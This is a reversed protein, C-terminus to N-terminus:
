NGFGLAEDMLDEEYVDPSNANSGLGSNDKKSPSCTPSNKLKTKMNPSKLFGGSSKTDSITDMVPNCQPSNTKNQLHRPSTPCDIILGNEPSSVPSSSDSMSKNLHSGSHIKRRVGINEIDESHKDSNDNLKQSPIKFVNDKSKTDISALDSTPIHSNVDLDDNKDNYDDTEGNQKDLSNVREVSSSATKCSSSNSSLSSKERPSNLPIIKPSSNLTVSSSKSFSVDGRKEHSTVKDGSSDVSFDNTNSSHDPKNELPISVIENCNSSQSGKTVTSNSSDPEPSAPADFIVVKKEESVVPTPGDMEPSAPSENVIVQDAKQSSTNNSLPVTAKCTLKDIVASLSGKRGRSATNNITQKSSSNEVSSQRSVPPGPGKPANPVSNSGRFNSVSNSVSPTRSSASDSNSGKARFCTQQNSVNSNNSSSKNNSNNHPNSNSASVNGWNSNNGSSHSNSNRSQSSNGSNYNNRYSSNSNSMNNHNNSKNYSNSGKNSYNQPSNGGSRSSNSVNSVIQNSPRNSSNNSNNGSSGKNHSYSNKSGGSNSVYMNSKGSNVSSTSNGGKSASTVHGGAKSFKSNVTSTTSTCSTTASTTTVIPNNVSTPTPVKQGSSTSSLKPIPPLSAIKNAKPNLFSLVSEATMASSTTVSMKSNSTSKDRGSSSSSRSNSKSKEKESHPSSTRSSISSLSKNLSKESKSSSSGSNLSSASSSRAHGSKNSQPNPSNKGSNGQIQINKQLNSSSSKSSSSNSGSSSKSTPTHSKGANQGQPSKGNSNQTLLKQSGSTALSVAGIKGITTSTPSQTVSKPTSPTTPTSPTRSVGSSTSSPVVIPKLKITATRSIKSESKSSSSSRQTKHSKNAKSSSSSSSSSSSKKSEHPSNKQPVEADSKPTNETKMANIRDFIGEDSASVSKSSSTSKVKETKENVKSDKKSIKDKVKIDKELIEKKISKELKEIKVVAEKETKEIKDVPKIEKAPLVSNELSMKVGEKTIKLKPMPKYHENENGVDVDVTTSKYVATEKEVSYSNNLKKKKREKKSEEKDRKRKGSDVSLVSKLEKERQKRKFKESKNFKNFSALTSKNSIQLRTPSASVITMKEVMPLVFDEDDSHFDFTSSRKSGDSDAPSVSDYQRMNSLKIKLSPPQSNTSSNSSDEKLGDRDGSIACANHKVDNKLDLQAKLMSISKGGSAVQGSHISSVRAANQCSALIGAKSDCPENKISVTQLSPSTLASNHSPSMQPLIGPSVIYNPSSIPFQGPSALPHHSPSTMLPSFVDPSTVGATSDISNRNLSNQRKLSNRRPQSNRRVQAPVPGEIERGGPGLLLEELSTSTKENKPVVGHHPSNRSTPTPPTQRSSWQPPPHFDGGGEGLIQNPNPPFDSLNMDMMDLGMQSNLQYGMGLSSRPSEKGMISDLSNELKKVHSEGIDTLDIVSGTSQGGVSGVSNVSSPRALEEYSGGSSDLDIHKEAMGQGHRESGIRENTAWDTVDSESIRHKPSKGAIIDKSSKRKTLRKRPNPAPFPNSAVSTNEELLKSLMPSENLVPVAQPQSTPAPPAAPTTTTDMAPSGADLLTALLPNAGPKQEVIEEPVSSGLPQESINKNLHITYKHMELHQNPSWGEVSPYPPPNPLNTLTNQTPVTNNSTPVTLKKVSNTQSWTLRSKVVTKKVPEPPILKRIEEDVKKIVSRLTIPISFSRQFARSVFEDSCISEDKNNMCVHCTVSTLDSMDLEVTLMSHQLPHEFMVCIYTLSVATLEFVVGSQYEKKAQPRVLSHIVSNFMLQKRLLNLVKPVCTPHTFPIKTVLSGTQGLCGESTKNFFYIHQQDPLTVFLEDNNLVNGNSCHQLLLSLFPEESECIVDLGTIDKISTIVSSAVPIAHPLVLVFHASLSCSNVNNVNQFSPISRGDQNTRVSMLPITQLKNVSSSPELTVTVSHGLHNETIAEVTMAHSSMTKKCLLDYPSVYYILKMPHGGRRPLLIGLPSKHIYNAVGNISSQLQALQNLDSELSSLALYGKNKQKRDGQISYISLLGQLHKVFEEFNGKSLVEVMDECSMPNDQHCICVDRIGNQGELVVIVKFMDSSLVVKNDLHTPPTFMMGLQRSILDLREILSQQSTIKMVRHLKDLCNQLNSKELAEGQFRKDNMVARMAKMSDSWSKHQGCRSRLRELLGASLSTSKELVKGPSFAETELIEPSLGVDTAM